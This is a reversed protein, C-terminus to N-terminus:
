PQNPPGSGQTMRDISANDASQARELRQQTETQKQRLTIADTEARDRAARAQAALAVAAAIEKARAEALNNALALSAELGAIREGSLARKLEGDMAAVVGDLRDIEEQLEKVTAM